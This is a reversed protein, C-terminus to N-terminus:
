SPLVARLPLHQPQGGPWLPQRAVFTTCAAPQCHPAAGAGLNQLPCTHSPPPSCEPCGRWTIFPYPLSSFPSPAAGMASCRRPVLLLHQTWCWLISAVGSQRDVWCVQSQGREAWSTPAAQCLLFKSCGWYILGHSLKEKKGIQLKEFALLRLFARWHLSTTYASEFQRKSHFAVHM